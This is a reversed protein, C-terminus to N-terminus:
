PLDSLVRYGTLYPTREFVNVFGNCLAISSAAIVTTSIEENQLVTLNWFLCQLQCVSIACVKLLTEACYASGVSGVSKSSTTLAKRQEM